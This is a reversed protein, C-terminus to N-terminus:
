ILRQRYAYATVASRSSVGLKNFINSVHREVTRDSIFLEDAIAKNTKGQAIQRLVEMERQSLGHMNGSQMAKLLSDVRTVDPTAGLQHFTSRAAGYEM